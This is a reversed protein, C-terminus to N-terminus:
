RLQSPAVGFKKKFATSFHQVSSYGLEFAIETVSKHAELLDIKALELRSEALYGFVTAGFMEKFGRKLKYENIGAARALQSLSPPVEMHQMLYDRAYVLREKDYDTKAYIKIPSLLQNYSEAQLVLIEIAKSLLFMKKLPGVFKCSVVANICSQIALNISLNDASLAAPEGKLIKDAFRKLTDNGDRTINLFADETFQIMFSRMKLEEVKMKGEAENGYFLNHQNTNLEFQKNLYKDVMLLKGKLSFYMTVMKMDGRWDLTIQERFVSESYSMRIGNFIWIRTQIDGFPLNLNVLETKLEDTNFGAENLAHSHLINNSAADKLEFPM